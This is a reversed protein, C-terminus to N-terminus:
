RFPAITDIILAVSSIIMLRGDREHDKQKIQELDEILKEKVEVNIDPYIGIRGERLYKALLFYCQSKLNGYNHKPPSTYAGKPNNDSKKELARSNNIFGKVGRMEDVLGGGLGDEDVIINKHEVGNEKMIRELEIRTVKLSQKGYVYIRRIFLSRWIMIVTYDKGFRSLDATIFVDRNHVADSETVDFMHLIDDYPFLASEDDDFEWNGHLLRERIQKPLKKLNEIYHPSIFPNDTVLAPLFKRYKPLTGLKYPKYFDFYLFNKAPNSCILIKPTIGFEDLKYRIRSKVIHFAKTTIQATEDIAAGTYERSGLSDFEPDSPYAFLDKLYITSGNALFTIIADISNYKYDVDRKLGWSSCVEFFTLLTSDKLDKLIARGLLWRSGKYRLCNIILWASIFFSKGGGAGGGLLLENVNDDGLIEFAEKQKLTPTWSINVERTPSELLQNNM